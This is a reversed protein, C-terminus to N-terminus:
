VAWFYLLAAQPLYGVFTGVQLFPKKLLFVRLATHEPQLPLPLQLITALYGAAM